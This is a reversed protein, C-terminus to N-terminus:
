AFRKRIRFGAVGILASGLLLLTTPEPIGNAPPPDPGFVKENYAGEAVGQSSLLEATLLTPAGNSAAFVTDSDGYALGNAFSFIISEPSVAINAAGSASGVQLIGAETKIPTLNFTWITASHDADVNSINYLYLYDDATVVDYDIPLNGTYEGAKYVEIYIDALPSYTQDGFNYYDLSVTQEIIPTAMGQIPTFCVGFLVVLCILSLLTSLRRM